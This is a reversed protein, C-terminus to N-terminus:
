ETQPQACHDLQCYDNGQNLWARKTNIICTLQIYQITLPNLGYKFGWFQLYAGPPKLVTALALNLQFDGIDILLDPKPFPRSARKEDEKSSPLLAHTCWQM